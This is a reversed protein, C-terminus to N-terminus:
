FYWWIRVFTLFYLILCFLKMAYKKHFEIYVLILILPLSKYINSVIFGVLSLHLFLSCRDCWKHGNYVIFKHPEYKAKTIFILSEFRWWESTIQFCLLVDYFTGDKNCICSFIINNSITGNCVEQSFENYVLIFNLPPSKYINLVKFGLWSIHISLSFKDWWKHGNSIRHLHSTM